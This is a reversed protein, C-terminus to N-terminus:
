GGIWAAVDAAVANSARNLAATVSAADEGAVPANAEFRRTRIVDSGETSLSADYVVLVKGEGGLLEFATLTGTLRTAPAIASNRQDPV